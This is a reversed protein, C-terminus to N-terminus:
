VERIDGESGEHTFRAHNDSPRASSKGASESVATKSSSSSPTSAAKTVIGDSPRERNNDVEAIFIPEVDENDQGKDGEAVPIHDDDEEDAEEEDLELTSINHEKGSRPRKASPVLIRPRTNGARLLSRGFARVDALKKKKKKSGTSRLRPGALRRQKVATSSLPRISGSDTLPYSLITIL